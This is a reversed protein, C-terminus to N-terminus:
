DSQCTSLTYVHLYPIYRVLTHKYISELLQWRRVADALHPRNGGKRGTGGDSRVAVTRRGYLSWFIYLTAPLRSCLALFPRLFYLSLPETVYWRISSVSLYLIFCINDPPSFALVASLKSINGKRFSCTGFMYRIHVGLPHTCNLWVSVASHQISM